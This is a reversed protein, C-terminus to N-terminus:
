LLQNKGFMAKNISFFINGEITLNECNEKWVHKTLYMNPVLIFSTEGGKM